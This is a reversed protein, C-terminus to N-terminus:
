LKNRKDITVQFTRIFDDHDGLGNDRGIQDLISQDVFLFVEEDAKRSFFYDWLANTWNIFDKCM